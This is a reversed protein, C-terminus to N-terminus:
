LCRKEERHSSDRPGNVQSVVGRLPKDTKAVSTEGDVFLPKVKLGLSAGRVVSVSQSDVTGSTFEEFDTFCIAGISGLWQNYLRRTSTYLTLPRSRPPLAMEYCFSYSIINISTLYYNM